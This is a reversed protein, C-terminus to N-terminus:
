SEADANQGAPSSLQLIDAVRTSNIQSCLVMHDCYDAVTRIVLEGGAIAKLRLKDSVWKVDDDLQDFENFRLDTAPAAKLDTGSRHNLSLSAEAV